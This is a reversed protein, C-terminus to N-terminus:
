RSSNYGARRRRWKGRLHISCHLWGAIKRYDEDSLDGKYSAAPCGLKPVEEEVCKVLDNKALECKAVEELLKTYSQKVFEFDVKPNYGLEVKFNPKVAYKGVEVKIEEAVAYGTINGYNCILLSFIVIVMVILALCLRDLKM